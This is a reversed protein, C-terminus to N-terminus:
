DIRGKSTVRCFNKLIKLGSEGSKEPHFQMAFINEKQIMTVFEIGYDTTTIIIDKNEPDVYYSHAFYMFSSDSITSLLPTEKKIKIRNWGMHPVKMGYKDMIAPNFRRVKGRILNLGPCSDGEESETFLLQFGLCIGLFPTGKAIVKYLVQLLELKKLNEMAHYFAGVGPLVIANAKSIDRADSTVITEAGAKELAKSVSRLNGMGYNVVAIM